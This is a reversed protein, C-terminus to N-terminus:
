TCDLSSELDKTFTEAGLKNLHRGDYFFDNSYTSHPYLLKFSLGDVSLRQIHTLLSYMHSQAKQSLLSKALPSLVFYPKVGSAKSLKLIEKLYHDFMKIPIFKLELEYDFPGVFLEASLQEVPLPVSGLNAYYMEFSYKHRREHFFSQLERQITPVIFPSNTRALIFRLLYEFKSYHRGPYENFSRSMDYIKLFDKLKDYRGYRVSNIWLGSTRYLEPSYVFGILLCKPPTFTKLYRQYTQFFEISSTGGWRSLNIASYRKFETTLINSSGTSDGIVLIDQDPLQIEFIQEQFLVGARNKNRTKDPFVELLIAVPSLSAIILGVIISLKVFSSKIAAGLQVNVM